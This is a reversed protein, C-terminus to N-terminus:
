CRTSSRGTLCARLKGSAYRGFHLRLSQLVTLELLQNPPSQINM